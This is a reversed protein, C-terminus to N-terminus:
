LGEQSEDLAKFLDTSGSMHNSCGSHGHVMCIQIQHIHWSFNAKLFRLMWRRNITHKGKSMEKNPGIILKKTVLSRAINAIFSDRATIEQIM